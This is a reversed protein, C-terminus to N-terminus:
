SSAVSLSKVLDLVRRRVDPDSIRTFATLLETQDASLPEPGDTLGAPEEALSFSLSVPAASPLPMPRAEFDSLGDFFYDPSVKFVRCLDYLRSAGVRNVGREYKQIQQFTLQLADGLKEQSMGLATRRLRIRAGVHIDIPSPASEGDSGARKGM